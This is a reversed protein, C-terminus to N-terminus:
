CKGFDFEIKKEDTNLNDSNSISHDQSLIDTLKSVSQLRSLVLRNVTSNWSDHKHLTRILAILSEAIVVPSPACFPEGPLLSEPAGRVQM